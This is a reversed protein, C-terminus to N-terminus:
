KEELIAISNDICPTIGRLPDAFVVYPIYSGEDFTPVEVPNGVIRKL